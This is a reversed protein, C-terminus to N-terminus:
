SAPRGSKAVLVAKIEAKTADLLEQETSCEPEITEIIGLADSLLSLMVRAEGELRTITDDAETQLLPMNSM